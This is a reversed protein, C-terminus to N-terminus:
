YEPLFFFFLSELVKVLVRKIDKYPNKHLKAIWYLYPLEPKIQNTPINSLINLVSMIKRSPFLQQVITSCM